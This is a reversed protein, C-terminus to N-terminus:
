VVLGEPAMAKWAAVAANFDIHGIEAFMGANSNGYFNFRIPQNTVTNALWARTLKVILAVEDDATADMDMDILKIFEGRTCYGPFDWRGDRWDPTIAPNLRIVSTAVIPPAAAAPALGGLAAHAMYSAFDPPDGLVATALKLISAKLGTDAKDNAVLKADAANTKRINPLFNNATGISLVGVDSAASGASLAEAVAAAAPNNHGTVGGDWYRGAYDFEHTGDKIRAQVAAPKDFYNVPATTSAHIADALRCDAWPQRPSNPARFFFARERDYDFSVIVIHTQRTAGAARVNLLKRDGLVAVLAKQKAETSYRAGLGLLRMPNSFIGLRKFMANRQTSDCFLAAIASPKMNAALGGLVISGGSNGFAFDFHSLIDHGAVDGYLHELALAQILAWSGGGDLSLIRVPKEAM